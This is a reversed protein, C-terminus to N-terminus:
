ISKLNNVFCFHTIIIWKASFSQSYLFPYSRRFFPQSIERVLVATKVGFRYIQKFMRIVRKFTIFKSSNAYAQLKMKGVDPMQRLISRVTKIALKKDRKDFRGGEEYISRALSSRGRASDCWMYECYESM